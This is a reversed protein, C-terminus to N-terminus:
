SSSHARLPRRGYEKHVSLHLASGVAVTPEHQSLEESSFLEHDQSSGQSTSDDSGPGVCGSCPHPSLPAFVSPVVATAHVSPQADFGGALDMAPGHAGFATVHGPGLQEGDISPLSQHGGEFAESMLAVKDNVNSVFDRFQIMSMHDMAKHSLDKNTFISTVVQEKAEDDLGHFKQHWLGLRLRDLKAVAEQVKQQSCGEEEQAKHLSDAVHLVEKQALALRSQRQVLLAEWTRVQADLPGLAAKENKAAELEARVTSLM